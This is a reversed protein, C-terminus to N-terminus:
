SVHGDESMEVYWLVSNPMCPYYIVEVLGLMLIFDNAGQEVKSSYEM